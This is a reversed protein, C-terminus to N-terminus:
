LIEIREGFESSISVCWFETGDEGFIEYDGNDFLVTVTDADNEYEAILCRPGAGEFGYRTPYTLLSFQLQPLIEDFKETTMESAKM